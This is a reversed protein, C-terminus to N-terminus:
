IRAKGTVFVFRVAGSKRNSAIFSRLASRLAAFGAGGRGTPFSTSGMPKGAVGYAKVTISAYGWAAVAQQNALVDVDTEPALESMTASFVGGSGDACPCTGKDRLTTAKVEDVIGESGIAGNTDLCSYDQATPGACVAGATSMKADQLSATLAFATAVCTIGLGFVSVSRWM